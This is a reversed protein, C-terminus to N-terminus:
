NCKVKNTKIGDFVTKNKSFLSPKNSQSWLTLRYQSSIIVLGWDTKVRGWNCKIRDTM